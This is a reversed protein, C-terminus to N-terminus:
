QVYEPLAHTRVYELMRRYGDANFHCGDGNTYKEIMDGNSDKFYSATDLYYLGMEEAVELVWQNRENIVANSITSAHQYVATVIPYISQLIIKTDPSKEQISNILKKYETKFYLQIKDKTLSTNYLFNHGLTIVLIEPKKLAAAEHIYMEEGTEPYVIKMKVSEDIKMTGGKPTWVQTDPLVKYYKIGNTTSDGLFVIKDIYEQGMDSTPALIVSSGPQQTTDPSKTDSTDPSKTTDGPSQTEQTTHGTGTPDGSTDDGPLIWRHSVVVSFIIVLSIFIAAVLGVVVYFFWDGGGPPRAPNRGAAPPRGSVPNTGARTQRRQPSAPPRNQRRAPPAKRNPHNGNQM